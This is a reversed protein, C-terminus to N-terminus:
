GGFEKDATGVARNTNRNPEQTEEVGFKGELIKIYNGQNKIIWDFNFWEGSFIWKQKSAIELISKFDFLPEKKRVDLKLIREPTIAKLTKRGNKVAFDNWMLLMTNNDIENVNANVSVSLSKQTESILSPNKPNEKKPKPKTPRGGKSGNTAQKERFVQYKILDRKLQQKIPEFAIQLLLDETTPNLDNVYELILVLLEGAKDKPLKQVTHLLDAYLVFSKKGEM